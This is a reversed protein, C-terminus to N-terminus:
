QGPPPFSRAAEFAVLQLREGPTRSSWVDNSVSLEFRGQRVQVLAQAIPLRASASNSALLEFDGDALGTGRLVTASGDSTAVIAASGSIFTAPAAPNTSFTLVSAREVVLPELLLPADVAYPRPELNVILADGDALLAILGQDPYVANGKKLVTVSPYPQPTTGTWFTVVHPYYHYIYTYVDKEDFFYSRPHLPYVTGLWLLNHGAGLSATYRSVAAEYDTLYVPDTFRLLAGWAAVVPAALLAAILAASLGRRRRQERTLRATLGPIAGVGQAIFFYLSPFVPYLFRAEKHGIGYTQAGFVLVFWLAHFATASRHTRWGTLVGVIAALLLPWTLSNVIFRYNQVTGEDVLVADRVLRLDHLFVRPAAFISSRGLVPYLIIPFLLLVVVPTIGLVLLRPVLAARWFPTWARGPQRELVGSLVEFAAIFVLWLPLLQYRHGVAAGALLGAAFLNAFGPSQRARWYFYFAATIFAAGPIDEKALPASNIILLNMSLLTTGLLGARLGLQRRLLGFTALLLGGFLLIASVHALMFAVDVSGVVQAAATAPLLLVPYLIGRYISYDTPNRSLIARASLLSQYSDFYDIRLRVSVVALYIVISGIAGVMAAIGLKGSDAAIARRRVSAITSASLAQVIAGVDQLSGAPKAASQL